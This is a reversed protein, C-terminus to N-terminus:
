IVQPKGAQERLTMHLQNALQEPLHGGAIVQPMEGLKLMAILNEAAKKHSRRMVESLIEDAM